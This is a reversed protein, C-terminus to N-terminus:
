YVRYYTKLQLEVDSNVVTLSTLMEPNILGQLEQLSEPTISIACLFEPIDNVTHYLAFSLRTGKMLDFNLDKPVRNLLFYLAAAQKVQTAHVQDYDPSGDPNRKILESASKFENEADVMVNVMTGVQVAGWNSDRAGPIVDCFYKELDTVCKLDNKLSNFSDVKTMQEEPILRSSIEPSAASKEVEQKPAEVLEGVKAIKEEVPVPKLYFNYYAAGALILVAFFQTFSFNFSKKKQVTTKNTTTTAARKKIESRKEERKKVLTNTNAKRLDKLSVVRTSSDRDNASSTETSVKYTEEVNHYDDDSLLSVLIEEGLRVPFFSTFDTRSGPQLREENIFSGNTSGQDTVYFKDGESVIVLHKRSVSKHKIVIDNTDGSGISMTTSRFPYTIPDNSGVLIEIRM